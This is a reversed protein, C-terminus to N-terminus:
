GLSFSSFASDWSDRNEDSLEADALLCLVYHYCGDDLIAARGIRDGTEGACAWVLDWRKWDEQRSLVPAIEERSRGSIERITRDLDGGPLTQLTMEYGEWLYLQGAESESAPVAAGEPLAVVIQAPPPLTIGAQVDGLTEFTEEAACGCLLFSVAAICFWKKM